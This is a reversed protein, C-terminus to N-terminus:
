YLLVACVCRAEREFVPRNSTQSVNWVWMKTEFLFAHVTTAATSNKRQWGNNESDKKLPQRLSHRRTHKDFLRPALACNFPPPSSPYEIPTHTSSSLLQTHIYTDQCYLRQRCGNCCNVIWKMGVKHREIDKNEGKKGGDIIFSSLSSQRNNDLGSILCLLCNLDRRTERECVCKQRTSQLHHYMYM